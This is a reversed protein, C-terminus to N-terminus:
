NEQSIISAVKSEELGLQGSADPLEGIELGQITPLSSGLIGQLEGYISAVNNMMKTLQTEKKKWLRTTTRQEADLDRKLEIITEVQTEFRHKFGSDTLYQYLAELKEDKNAASSRAQAIQLISHRLVQALPLAYKYCTIWVQDYYGFTEIGNPLVDSVLIALHASLARKDERLKPLWSNSWAKTRKTEWVISGAYNGFKNQVKQVIDAGDIGKPVPSIIDTQFSERLRTELDLELVEGQLQQSTQQAKRQAEELAKKTDDLQKQLEMKELGAKEKETKSIEMEMLEREKLLKKQLEIERDENKVKEERIEKTLELIQEQLKRNRLKNEEAEQQFGKMKYEMEEKLRKAAREESELRIKELEIKHKESQENLIKDRFEHAFAESIELTKKCHPCVITNM